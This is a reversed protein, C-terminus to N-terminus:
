VLLMSSLRQVSYGLMEVVAHTMYVFFVGIFGFVVVVFDDFCIEIVCWSILM